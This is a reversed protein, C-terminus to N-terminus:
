RANKKMDAIRSRNGRSLCNGGNSQFITFTIRDNKRAHIARFYARFRLRDNTVVTAM